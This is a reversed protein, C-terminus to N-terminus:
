QIRVMAGASIRFTLSQVDALKHTKRVGPTLNLATQFETFIMWTASLSRLARLNATLLFDRQASDPETKGNFTRASYFLLEAGLGPLVSIGGLHQWSRPTYFIQMDLPVASMTLDQVYDEIYAAALTRYGLGLNLFWDDKLATMADVRFSFWHGTATAPIVPTHEYLYIYGASGAIFWAGKNFLSPQPLIPNQTPRAPLSGYALHCLSFLLLVKKM